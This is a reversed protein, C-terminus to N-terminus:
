ALDVPFACALQHSAAQDDIAAVQAGRRAHAFEVDFKEWKAALLDAATADFGGALHYHGIELDTGATAPKWRWCAVIGPRRQQCVAGQFPGHDGASRGAIGGQAGLGIDEEGQPYGSM